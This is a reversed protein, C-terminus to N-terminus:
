AAATKVEERAESKKVLGAKRLAFLTSNQNKGLREWAAQSEMKGKCAAYCEAITLPEGAAVLAKYMAGAQSTNEKALLKAGDKATPEYRVILLKKIAKPVKVKKGKKAKEAM